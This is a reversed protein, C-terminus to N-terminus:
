RSKDFYQVLRQGGPSEQNQEYRSTRPTPGWFWSRGAQGQQVLQDTRTWVRQFAPDAFPSPDNSARVPAGTTGFLTALGALLALALAGASYLRKKMTVEEEQHIVRADR